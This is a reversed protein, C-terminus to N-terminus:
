LSLEMLTFVRSWKDLISVRYKNILKDRDLPHNILRLVELDVLSLVQLGQEVVLVWNISDLQNILEM